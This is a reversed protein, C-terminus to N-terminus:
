VYTLTEQDWRKWVGNFDRYLNNEGAVTKFRAKSVKSELGSVDATYDIQADNSPIMHYTAVLETSGAEVIIFGNKDSKAFGLHPNIPTAMLDDVNKALLDLGPISALAPDSAIQTILEERFTSSTVSSGVFEIIRKSIDDNVNPTAAYFAHIDGTIAVVNGAAALKELLASRKNRFGDWSDVNMYFKQKFQDIPAVMTLDVQIPFLSYENGWVKWTAQSGEVTTLFWAEQEAGMVNESEGATTALKNAAYLDFTDKIVLYRAGLQSFLSTKGLHMYAFGRELTMQAAEDIPPVASMTAEIVSNIYDVAINGAIKATDYEPEAAKAADILLKKYDAYAAADVNVYAKGSTV